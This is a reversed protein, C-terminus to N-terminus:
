SPAAEWELMTTVSPGSQELKTGNVGAAGAALGSMAQPRPLGPTVGALELTLGKIVLDKVRGARRRPNSICSLAEFLAPHEDRSFVLRMRVAGERRGGNM